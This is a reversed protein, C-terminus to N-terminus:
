INNAKLTGDLLQRTLPGLHSEDRTRYLEVLEQIIQSHPAIKHVNEKGDYESITYNYGVPIKEVKILTSSDLSGTHEEVFKDILGHEHAMAIIEPATRWPSDFVFAIELELHYIPFGMGKTVYESVYEMANIRNEGSRDIPRSQTVLRNYGHKFPELRIIKFCHHITPNKHFAEVDADSWAFHISTEKEWLQSGLESEPPYAEFVSERFSKSFSLGDGYCANYLVDYTAATTM